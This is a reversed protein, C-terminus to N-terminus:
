RPLERVRLDEPWEDMDGGKRDRLHLARQYASYGPVTIWEAAKQQEETWHQGPLTMGGDFPMRGLQKVFPAVGAARCQAVLSRAWALDMPRARPGSEGGVIVWDIKKAFSIAGDLRGGLFAPGLWVPGLLPECSLFRVAAPTALLHPIREDAAAQDEVSTGLWINPPPEPGFQYRLAWACAEAREAPTLLPAVHDLEANIDLGSEGLAKACYARMREPRKTLVLFTHRRALAMRLFVRDLLLDPVAEHFLDAMSDVFYRQPKQERLPADLREDDLVQVRSFPVDYQRATFPLRAGAARFARVLEGTPAALAARVLDPDTLATAKAWAKAADLNSVYRKDHLAFAYCNDCGVSVRTCGTTPNWVATAWQIATKGSM